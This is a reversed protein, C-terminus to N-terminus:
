RRGPVLTPPTTGRKVRAGSSRTHTDVPAPSSIHWRQDRNELQGSHRHRQLAMGLHNPRVTMGFERSLYSLVESATAGEPHALVARLAADSLSVGPM